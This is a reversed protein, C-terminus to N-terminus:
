ETKKKGQMIKQLKREINDDLKMQDRFRRPDFAVEEREGEEEGGSEEEEEEGEEEEGEYEEEEEKNSEDQETTQFEINIDILDDTFVLDLNSRKVWPPEPRNEVESIKLCDLIFLPNIKPSYLTYIDKAHPM